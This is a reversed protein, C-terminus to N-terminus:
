DRPLISCCCVIQASHQTSINILLLYVLFKGWAAYNNRLRTFNTEVFKLTLYERPNSGKMGACYIEIQQAAKGYSLLYEGDTTVGAM